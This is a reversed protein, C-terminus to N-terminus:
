CFVGPWLGGMRRTHSASMSKLGGTLTERAVLFCSGGKAESRHQWGISPHRDQILLFVWSGMEEEAPVPMAPVSVDAGRVLDSSKPARPETM